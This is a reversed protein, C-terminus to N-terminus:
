SAHHHTFQRVLLVISGWVGRSAQDYINTDVLRQSSQSLLLWKLQGLGVVSNAGFSRGQSSGRSQGNSIPIFLLGRFIASLIAVVANISIPAKWYELSADEFQRLMIIIATFAMGSVIVAAVEWSWVRLADRWGSSSRPPNLEPNEGLPAYQDGDEGTAKRKFHPSLRPAEDQLPSHVAVPKRMIRLPVLNAGPTGAGSGDGLLTETDKPASITPRQFAM